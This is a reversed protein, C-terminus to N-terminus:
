SRRINVKYVGVERPYSKCFYHLIKQIDTTIPLATARFPEWSGASPMYPISTELWKMPLEHSTRPWEEWEDNTDLKEPDLSGIMCTNRNVSEELSNFDGTALADDKGNRSGLESFTGVKENNRRARKPSHNLGAPGLRFRIKRGVQAWKVDSLHVQLGNTSPQQTISRDATHRSAQKRILWRSHADIKLSDTTNIFQLSTHVANPNSM